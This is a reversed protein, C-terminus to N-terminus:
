LVEQFPTRSVTVEVTVQSGGGQRKAAQHWNDHGLTKESRLRNFNGVVDSM